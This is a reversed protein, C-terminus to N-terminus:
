REKMTHDALVNFLCLYPPQLISRTQATDKDASLSKCSKFRGQQVRPENTPTSDLCTGFKARFKSPAECSLKRSTMM